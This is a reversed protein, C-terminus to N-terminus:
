WRAPVAVVVVYVVVTVLVVIVDVVVTVVPLLSRNHVPLTNLPPCASTVGVLTARIEKVESNAM